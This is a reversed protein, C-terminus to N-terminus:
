LGSMLESLSVELGKAIKQLTLYTPNTGGIEFRAISSEDTNIKTALDFQTLGKENRVQKIRKGLQKLEMDRDM